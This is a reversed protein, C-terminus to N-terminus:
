ATEQLVMALFRRAEPVHENGAISLYYGDVVDRVASWAAFVTEADEGPRISLGAIVACDPNAARIQRTGAEVSRRYAEPSGEVGQAQIEVVDAVRAAAGLIGCRLFADDESEGAGAPCTAGDVAALSPHPAVILRLGRRDALAAFREIARVPDRRQDLPTAEWGEIDYLVTDLTRIPVDRFWGLDPYAFADMPRSRAPIAGLIVGDPGLFLRREAPDLQAVWGGQIVWIRPVPEATPRGLLLSAALALGAAVTITVRRM